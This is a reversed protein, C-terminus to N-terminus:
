SNQELSNQIPVHKWFFIVIVHVIKLKVCLAYTYLTETRLYANSVIYM